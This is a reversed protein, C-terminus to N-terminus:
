GPRRARPRLMTGRLTDRSGPELPLANIFFPTPAPLALPVVFPQELDIELRAGGTASEVIRIAGGMRVVLRRAVSLGLGVGEHWARAYEM